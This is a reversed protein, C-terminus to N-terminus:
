LAEKERQVMLLLAASEFFTEVADEKNLKRDTFGEKLNVKKAL